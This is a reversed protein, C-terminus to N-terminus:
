KIIDIKFEAFSMKKIKKKLYYFEPGCTKYVYWMKILDWVEDTTNLKQLNQLETM